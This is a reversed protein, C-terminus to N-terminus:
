QNDQLYEIACMLIKINDHAYGLVSNCKYCLLGRIKGTKHNHDIHFNGKGDPRASGCIACCYGQKKLMADYDDITIGYERKLKRRRQSKKFKDPNEKRWKNYIERRKDEMLGKYWKKLYRKDCKICTTRHGDKHSRDIYFEDIQKEKHCRTCTKM